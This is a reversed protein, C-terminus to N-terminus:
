RPAQFPTIAPDPEGFEFEIWDDDEDGGPTVVVREFMAGRALAASFSNRGDRDWGHLSEFEEFSRQGALIELVLRSSIRIKRNGSMRYAGHLALGFGKEECRNVANQADVMPQPLKNIASVLISRTAQVSSPTLRPELREPPPPVFLARIRRIRKSSEMENITEITVILVMDVSTTRSLFEKAVQEASLHGGSGSFISERMGHCGGDCLIVVRLADPDASSLQKTKKDLANFIPTKTPSYPLNYSAYRGSFFQQGKNYSISFCASGISHQLNATNLSRAAIDQVFPEVHEKLHARLLSRAPLKLVTKSNGYKGIVEHGVDFSFANPDLGHKRALRSLEASFQGIPNNEHLGKDSAATIDGVVRVEKDDVKIKFSFDPKSGDPLPSEHDFSLVSGLAALWVTEWVASLRNKELRNLREALSALAKPEIVGDLSDLCRQLSRRSFILMTM